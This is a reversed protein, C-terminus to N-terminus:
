HVEVNYQKYFTVTYLESGFCSHYVFLFSHHKQVVLVVSVYSNFRRNLPVM